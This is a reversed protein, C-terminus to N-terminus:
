ARYARLGFTTGNFAVHLTRSIVCGPANFTGVQTWLSEIRFAPLQAAARPSGHGAHGDQESGVDLGGARQGAGGDATCVNM